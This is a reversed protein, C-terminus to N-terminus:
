KSVQKLASHCSREPRFGHSTDLFLPEFVLNLIIEMAKQVVKDRPSPIGLPRMKGNPKPTCLRRTPKFQFKESRLDISLKKFFEPSFGELTENDIGPNM